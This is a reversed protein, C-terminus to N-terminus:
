NKPFKIIGSHEIVTTDTTVIVARGSSTSQRQVTCSSMASVGFAAAILTVAYLIVKIIIRTWDIKSMFRSKLLSLVFRM